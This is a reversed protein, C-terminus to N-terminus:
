DYAFVNRLKYDRRLIENRFSLISEHRAKETMLHERKKDIMGLAVQEIEEREEQPLAQFFAEYSEQEIKELARFINENSKALDMVRRRIEIYHRRIRENKESTIVLALKKVVREILDSRSLEIDSKGTRYNMIEEEISPACESFNRPLRGSGKKKKLNEIAKNIGRYIIEKPVGRRKWRVILDYDRPSLMIGRGVLFLFHNQIDIIYSNRYAV